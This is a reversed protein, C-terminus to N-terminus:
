DMICHIGGRGKCAERRWSATCDQAHQEQGQTSLRHGTVTVVLPLRATKSSVPAGTTLDLCCRARPGLQKERPGLQKEERPSELSKALSQPM